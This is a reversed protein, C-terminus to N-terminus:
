PVREDLETHRQDLQEGLDEVGDIPGTIGGDGVPVNSTSAPGMDPSNGSDGDDGCGGLVLIAAAVAGVAAAWTRTARM